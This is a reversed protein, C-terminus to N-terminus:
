SPEIPWGPEGPNPWRRLLRRRQSDTLRVAREYVAVVRGATAKWTPFPDETSWELDGVPEIRYLDGFVYKSAYFRAYERDSTLYVRDPHATRPDIAHGGVTVEKGAAHAVCIACGDVLKPPSPLLLDGPKLGDIGGHWLATTSM